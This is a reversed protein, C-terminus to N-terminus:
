CGHIRWLSSSRREKPKSAAPSCDTTLQSLTSVAPCTTSSPSAALNGLEDPMNWACHGEVLIHLLAVYQFRDLMVEFQGRNPSDPIGRKELLACDLRTTTQQARFVM